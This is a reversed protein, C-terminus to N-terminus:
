EKRPFLSFVSGFTSLRPLMLRIDDKVRPKESEILQRVQVRYAAQM